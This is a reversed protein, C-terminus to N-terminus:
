CGVGLSMDVVIGGILGDVVCFWDWLLLIYVVIGVLNGFGWYRFATDSDDMM